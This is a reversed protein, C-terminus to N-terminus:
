HGKGRLYIDEGGPRKLNTLYVQKDPAVEVCLSHLDERDFGESQLGDQGSAAVRAVEGHVALQDSRVGDLDSPINKLRMNYYYKM